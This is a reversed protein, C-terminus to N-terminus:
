RRLLERLNEITLYGGALLVGAVMIPWFFEYVLVLASILALIITARAIFRHLRRRFGAEIVLIVMAMATVGVALYQRALLVLVVFGVMVLGVSTAAWAEALSGLRLEVDSAPRHPHTLHAQVPQRIGTELRKRHLDFAELLTDDIGLRGQLDDIEVSLTEAQAVTKAHLAELHPQGELAVKQVGLGLLEGSKTEIQQKLELRDARVQAARERLQMLQQSFPLVKDLGAWGIPDYWARRVTGDRNYLPGAPANEGAIPDHAYLGWLGRYCLAWEPIPDLLRPDEWQKEQEPGISLGDGRAYDVFPVRLTASVRRRRSEPSGSQRLMGRWWIQLRDLIRRVPALFAIELETLYEGKVFYSAHSGAGAYVVPHEGVKELEPDDWRRRLDDGAYDHSAYAVWAPRDDDPCIYVCLMEWDAEHDNVGFFGSRWCNFPYFFWYQLVTWTKQRVVRGYYVYREYEEMMRQYTISAAVSTDGSVRGRALLTLSFLADILRSLYGVRALRGRGARFRARKHIGAIQDRVQKLRYAALEAINMPEIFKLFYVADFGDARPESLEDLTLEGEPILCRADEGLRQVWLSSERVYADVEMPFFREGRTYRIVPEFQRLLAVDDKQSL